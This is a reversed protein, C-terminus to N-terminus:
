NVISEWKQLVSDMTTELLICVNSFPNDVILNPNILLFTSNILVVLRM